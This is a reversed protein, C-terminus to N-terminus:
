PTLLPLQCLGLCPNPTSPGGKSQRYARVLAVIKSGVSELTSNPAPVGRGRSRGGGGGSGGPQTAGSGGAQSGHPEAVM